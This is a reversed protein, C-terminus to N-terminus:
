HCLLLVIRHLLFEDCQKTQQEDARRNQGGARDALVLHLDGNDVVPEDAHFLVASVAEDVLLALDLDIETVTAAVEELTEIIADILKTEKASKDLDLGEALGKLYAVKENLTM